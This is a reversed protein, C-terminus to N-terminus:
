PPVFELMNQAILFLSIPFPLWSSYSVIVSSFTVIVSGSWAFFCM